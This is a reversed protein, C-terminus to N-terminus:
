KLGRTMEYSVSPNFDEVIPSSTRDYLKLYLLM